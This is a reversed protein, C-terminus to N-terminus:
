RAADLRADMYLHPVTPLLCARCLRGATVIIGGLIYSICIGTIYRRPM